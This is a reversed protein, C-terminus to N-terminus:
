RTGREGRHADERPRISSLSTFSSWEAGLRTRILVGPVPRRYPWGNFMGVPLVVGWGIRPWDGDTTAEWEGLRGAEDAAVLSRLKEVGERVSRPNTSGGHNWGHLEFPYSWDVPGLCEGHRASASIPATASMAPGYPSGPGAGSSRGTSAPDPRAPMSRADFQREWFAAFQGEPDELDVGVFEASALFAQYAMEKQETAPTANAEQLAAVKKVLDEIKDLHARIEPTIVSPKQPDNLDWEWERNLLTLLIAYDEDSLIPTAQNSM